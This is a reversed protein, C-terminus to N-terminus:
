QGNTDEYPDYAETETAIGLEYHRNQLYLLRMQAYSDASGHLISDILEGNLERDAVKGTVKAGTVASAEKSPLIAGLPDLFIDVVEGVADRETSPGLIPLVVYAGERAGWVHLTEGFDTDEEPLSFDSGAPDFLGGLGLTSNLAFRFTTKVAPEIRGQLVHNIFKGPLSLNSAFNSAGKLIPEPLPLGKAHQEPTRYFLARDVVVNFAHTRQNVGQYPDNFETTPDPQACASLASLTLLALIMPRRTSPTIQPVPGASEPQPVFFIVDAHASSHDVDFRDVKAASKSSPYYHM